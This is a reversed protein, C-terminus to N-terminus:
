TTQGKLKYATTSGDKYLTAMKDSDLILATEIITAGSVPTFTATFGSWVDFVCNFNATLTGPISITATGKVKVICGNYTDDITVNGTITKQNNLAIDGSGLLSVGGITKISTGSVLITQYLSDFYTKLFAKFNTLSVKKQKNSDASDVLSISDANVPTTKSTLGNIFSGFNVDTLIVQYITSLDTIQKQIKGFAVLVSDTNGITGGTLLSLGSLATALVRATTFYLNVSGEPLADTTSASASSSQIWGEQADWIYLKANSGSGTDITAYDGNNGTPITSQLNALSTYTGRFHQNYDSINLKLDVEDKTALDYVGSAKNAPFHYEALGSANRLMWLKSIYGTIKDTFTMSNSNYELRENANENIISTASLTIKSDGNEAVIGNNSIHTEATQTSSVFDVGIDESVSNINLVDTIGQKFGASNIADVTPYKNGSGDVELNNQKNSKDEKLTFDPISDSDAKLALADYVADESPATTTFGSRITQVIGALEVNVPIQVALTWYDGNSTLANLEETTTIDPAGGVNGFTGKGVLIWENSDTNPLTEGDNVTTPNFALSSATGIYDSILDALGQVTGQNLQSAIEHPIKDTLGWVGNPLQGVRITSIDSPNIAM